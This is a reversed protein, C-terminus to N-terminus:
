CVKPAMYFAIVLIVVIRLLLRWVKTWRGNGM